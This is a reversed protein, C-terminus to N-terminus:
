QHTVTNDSEIIERISSSDERALKELLDILRTNLNAIAARIDWKTKDREGIDNSVSRLQLFPINEQLCVYHFGGGEMSEVVPATNQQIWEIRARDTSIENVTVARVPELGSLALLKKYPNILLGQSFPPSDGPALNLDFLTKFRQDEWVGLDALSEERIAVVDGPARRTFCGAIGAQIIMDPKRRGIQRMLSHTTAISGVGTILIGVEHRSGPVSFSGEGPGPLFDIAPQIEFTTAAALLIYMSCIDSDNVNGASHIVKAFIKIM